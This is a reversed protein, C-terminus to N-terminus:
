LRLPRRGLGRRPLDGRAILTCDGMGHHRKGAPDTITVRAVQERQNHDLTGGNELVATHPDPGHRYIDHEIREGRHFGLGREDRWGGEYGGGRCLAAVPLAQALLKWEGGDATTFRVRTERYYRSAEEFTCDFAASVIELGPKGSGEPFALRGTLGRQRGEDDETRAIVGCFAGCDFLFWALLMGRGDILRGGNDPEYGGVGGRVGWSHDRAGFWDKVDIRRGEAEIWGNVRGVQEYRRVDIAVRENVTNRTGWWADEEIAPFTATWALDYTLPHDGTLALRIEGFPRIVDYRLGGAEGELRGALPRSVRVNIQRGPLALVGFGDVVNMNKYVGMGMALAASGLPDTVTLFVRDYFRHDSTAAAAMSLPAQHWLLEDLSAARVQAV